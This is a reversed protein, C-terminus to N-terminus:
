AIDADICEKGGLQVMFGLSKKGFSTAPVGPTPSKMKSCCAGCEYGFTTHRITELWMRDGFFDSVLKSKYGSRTLRGRAHCNPCETKVHWAKVNPKNSHSSGAHGEARGESRGAGGREEAKKREADLDAGLEPAIEAEIKKIEDNVKSRREAYQNKGAPNHHAYRRRLEIKKMLM